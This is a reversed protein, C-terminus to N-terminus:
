FLDSSPFVDVFPKRLIEKEMKTLLNDSEYSMSAHLLQECARAWKPQLSIEGEEDVFFASEGAIERVRIHFQSSIISLGDRIPSGYSQDGSFFKLTNSHDEATHVYSKDISSLWHDWTKAFLTRGYVTDYESLANVQEETINRALNIVQSIQQANVGFIKEVLVEELIKIGLTRTYWVNKVLGKNIDKEKSPNLVEVKYLKGPWRTIIIKDLTHNVVIFPPNRDQKTILDGAKADRFLESDEDAAYVFGQIKEKKFHFLSM